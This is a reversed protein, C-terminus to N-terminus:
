RATVSEDQRWPGGGGKWRKGKSQIYLGDQKKTNFFFYNKNEWRRRREIQLCNQTKKSTIM